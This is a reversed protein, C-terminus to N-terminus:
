FIVEMTLDVHLVSASVRRGGALESGQRSHVITEFPGVDPSIGEITENNGAWLNDAKGIVARGVRSGSRRTRGVTTRRRRTRGV